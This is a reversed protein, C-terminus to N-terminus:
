PHKTASAESPSGSTVQPVVHAYNELPVNVTGMAGSATDRVLVKLTETGPAIAVLKAVKVGESTIRDYMAKGLNLTVDGKTINKAILASWGPRGGLERM